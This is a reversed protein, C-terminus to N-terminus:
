EPSPEPQLVTPNDSFESIIRQGWFPNLEKRGSGMAIWFAYEQCRPLYKAPISKLLGSYEDTKGARYGYVDACWISQLWAEKENKSYASVNCVEDVFQLVRLRERKSFGRTTITFFKLAKIAPLAEWTLADMSQEQDRAASLGFYTWPDTIVEGTDADVVDSMKQINFSRAEKRLECFADISGPWGSPTWNAVARDSFQGDSGQYRFTCRRM